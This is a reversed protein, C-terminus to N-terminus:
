IIVMYKPCRDVIKNLINKNVILDRSRGLVGLNIQMKLSLIGLFDAIYPFHNEKDENV